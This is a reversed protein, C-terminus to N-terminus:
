EPKLDAPSIIQPVPLPPSIKKTQVRRVVLPSPLVTWPDLMLDDESIGAVDPLVKLEVLRNNVRVRYTRGTELDVNALAEAITMSM